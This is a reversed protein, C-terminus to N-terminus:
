AAKTVRSCRRCSHPCYERSSASLREVNYELGPLCRATPCFAYRTGFSPASRFRGFKNFQQSIVLRLLTGYIVRGAHCQWM